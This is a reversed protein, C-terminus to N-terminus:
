TLSRSPFLTHIHKQIESTTMTLFPSITSALKMIFWSQNLSTKIIVFTIVFLEFTLFVEHYCLHHDWSDFILELNFWSCKLTWLPLKIELILFWTELNLNWSDLDLNLVWSDLILLLSLWSLYSKKKWFSLLVHIKRL